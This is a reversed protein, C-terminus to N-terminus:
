SQERASPTHALRTNQSTSSTRELQQSLMKFRTQYRSQPSTRSAITNGPSLFPTDNNAGPYSQIRCVIVVAARLLCLTIDGLAMQTVTNDKEERKQMEFTIYICDSYKLTSHDHKTLRGNKFFCLNQLRLIETCLKATTPSQCIHVLAHCFLFCYNYTVLNRM